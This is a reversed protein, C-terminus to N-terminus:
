NLFSPVGVYAASASATITYGIGTGFMNAYQCFGCFWVYRGGACCAHWASM